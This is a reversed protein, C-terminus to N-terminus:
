CCLLISFVPRLSTGEKHVKALGYVNVPQSGSPLISSFENASLYHGFNISFFKVISNEKSMILHDKNIDLFIECFKIKDLILEDLKNSYDTSSFIQIGNGKDFRCIEVGDDNCM